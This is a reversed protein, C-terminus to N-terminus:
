WIRRGLHYAGVLGGLLLFAALEVAIIYPGFLALSIERPEVVTATSVTGGQQMLIYILQALLILALIAPGRWMKPSMWAREQEIAQPGLNLMMFSFVFLVMIAGAYIIIELVSLFPAGLTYYMVAVALLSVIMYLLAHVANLQTIVLITSIIAIIGAFYFSIEM